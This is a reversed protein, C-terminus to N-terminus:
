TSMCENVVDFICLDVMCKDMFQSIDQIRFRKRIGPCKMQLEISLCFNLQNGEKVTAQLLNANKKKSM